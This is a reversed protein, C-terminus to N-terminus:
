RDRFTIVLAALGAILAIPLGAPVSFYLYWHYTQLYSSGTLLGILAIILPALAIFVGFGAIM